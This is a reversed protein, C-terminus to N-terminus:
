IDIPSLSVINTGWTVSKTRQLTPNSQTRQPSARPRLISTPALLSMSRTIGRETWPLERKRGGVVLKRAKACEEEKVLVLAELKKLLYSDGLCSGQEPDCGLNLSALSVPIGRKRAEALKRLETCDMENTLLKAELTELLANKMDPTSRTAPQQQRQQRVADAISRANEIKENRMVTGIINGDKEPNRIEPYDPEGISLKKICVGPMGPLRRRHHPRPSFHSSANM